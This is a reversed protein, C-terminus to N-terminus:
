LAAQFFARWNPAWSLEYPPAKPANREYFRLLPVPDEDMEEVRQYLAEAAPLDGVGERLQAMAQLGVPLGTNEALHAAALAEATRQRSGYYGSLWAASEALTAPSVRRDLLSAYAEAAAEPHAHRALYDGLTAYLEPNLDAMQRLAAVYVEPTDHVMEPYKQWASRYYRSFPGLVAQFQLTSPHAAAQARVLRQAM